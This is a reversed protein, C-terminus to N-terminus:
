IITLMFNNNFIRLQIYLLQPSAQYRFSTLEYIDSWAFRVVLFIGMMAYDCKGIYLYDFYLIHYEM